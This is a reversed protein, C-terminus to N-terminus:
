GASLWSLRKELAQTTTHGSNELNQSACIPIPIASSLTKHWLAGFYGSTPTAGGILMYFLPGGLCRASLLQWKGGRHCRWRAQIPPPTPTNM